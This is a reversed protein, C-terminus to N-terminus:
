GDSVGGSQNGNEIEELRCRLEEIEIMQQREMELLKSNESEVFQLYSIAVDEKGERNSDPMQDQGNKSFNQDFIDSSILDLQISEFQKNQLTSSNYISFTKGDFEEKINEVEQELVSIERSIQLREQITIRQFRSSWIKFCRLKNSSERLNDSFLVNKLALHKNTSRLVSNLSKEKEKM